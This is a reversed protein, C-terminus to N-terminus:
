VSEKAAENRETAALKLHESMAERDEAFKAHTRRFVEQFVGPLHEQLPILGEGTIGGPVCVREQLSPLSFVDQRLLDAFGMVMQTTLFTASERSIGTEDVAAQIMQQLLYSLFAPGCSSLDSAIRLFRESVELPQSIRSFLSLVLRRQGDTARQGFEILTLGSRAANTISPVARVVACPVLEELQVLQVPSTITVLIKQETLTDGLEELAQRYELPKVCLLVIDSEKAVEANSNAARLGPHRAALNTLKDPTRNFAIIKDPTLSHAAIFADILIAGMSGTGIFGVQMSIRRDFRRKQM